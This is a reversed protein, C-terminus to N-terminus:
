IKINEFDTAAPPGDAERVIIRTGQVDICRVWVGADILVGESMADVRRGEFDVTGAPRLASLTRGFRGRLREFDKAEPTDVVTTSASPPQLVMKKGVSTRPWANLLVRACIPVVIFLGLLTAIGLAPDRGFVLVAGVIIGGLGIMSLLGSTYLVLEAAMLLLGILILCYALLLQEMQRM